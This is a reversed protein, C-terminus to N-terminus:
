RAYQFGGRSLCPILTAHYSRIGSILIIPLVLLIFANLNYGGAFISRYPVIASGNLSYIMFGFLLIYVVAEGMKAIRADHYSVLVQPVVFSVFFTFIQVIRALNDNFLGITEWFLALLIAWVSLAEISSSINNFDYLAIIAITIIILLTLLNNWQFGHGAYGEYMFSMMRSIVYRYLLGSIAIFPIWAMFFCNYIKKNNLGLKMIAFLLVAVISVRHITFALLLLLISRKYKREDFACVAFLIFSLALSQRLIGFMYTFVNIGCLISFSMWPIDSYKYIFWGCATMNIAACLVLLSHFGLGLWSILWNLIVWGSEFSLPYPLDAQFFFRLTSLMQVFSLGSIYNFGARYSLLDVGLEDARLALILFMQISALWCISRRNFIKGYVPITLYNILYIAMIPFIEKVEKQLFTQYRSFFNCDSSM